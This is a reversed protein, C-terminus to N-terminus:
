ALLDFRSPRPILSPGYWVIDFAKKTGVLGVGINKRKILLTTGYVFGVVTLLLSKNM